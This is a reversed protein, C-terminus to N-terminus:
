TKKWCRVKKVLADVNQVPTEKMIGHGLNFIFYEEGLISLIKETQLLAKDKNYALLFPDLNGQVVTLPQLNDRIWEVPVTYDVSVADVETLKVYDVYLCGANKPFGIIKINKFDNKLTLVIKKTPKIVWKLFEEAPLIGAWTDFLQIVDAGNEIQKSLYFITTETIKKVLYNFKEESRCCFERVKAFNKSSGGEILYAIVTWPSGAFGILSKEKTLISRTQKLLEFVPNLKKSLKEYDIIELENTLPKIIPGIDKIFTIKCGLAQPLTLIDSFIIAADLDFRHIPQMTIGTSLNPRYCVDFFDIGKNFVSKYEPLYRGAQRMFWVPVNKNNFLM